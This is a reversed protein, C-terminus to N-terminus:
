FHRDLSSVHGRRGTFSFGIAVNAMAPSTLEDALFPGGYRFAGTLLDFRLRVEHCFGAFRPKEEVTDATTQKFRDQCLCSM